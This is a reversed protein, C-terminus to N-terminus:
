SAVEVVPVEVCAGDERPSSAQLAEYEERTAARYYLSGIYAGRGGYGYNGNDELMDGSLWRAPAYGVVAVALRKGSSRIWTVHGIAVGPDRMSKSGDFETCYPGEAGVLKPLRPAAAKRPARAKPAAPVPNAPCQTHKVPSGKSWEIKDGPNIRGSCCSCKAAFKATITMQERRKPAAQRVPRTPTSM